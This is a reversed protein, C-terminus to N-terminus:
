LHAFDPTLAVSQDRYVSRSAGLVVLSLKFLQKELISQDAELKAEIDVQLRLPMEM